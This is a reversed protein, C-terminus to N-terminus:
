FFDQIRSWLSKGFREFQGLIGEAQPGHAIGYAATSLVPAYAPSKLNESLLRVEPVPGLRAPLGLIKQAVHTVGNLHATGGTLVVGAPFAIAKGMATLKKKVLYFIEEVRAEVIQGLLRLPMERIRHEGLPKYRFVERAPEVGIRAYSEKLHIADKMSVGLGRSIDKDIYGGACPISAALRLVGGQFCGFSTLDKGVNVLLVGQQKEEPTLIEGEALTQLIINDLQIGARELCEVINDLIYGNASYVHAALRIRRARLGVPNVVATQGDLEYSQPLIQLLRRDEPLAAARRVEEMLGEIDGWEVEGRRCTLEAKVEAMQVHDGTVSLFAPPLRRGLLKELQEVVERAAHTALDADVVCGKQVGQSAQQASGLFEVTGGSNRLVLAVIKASGAEVATVIRRSM